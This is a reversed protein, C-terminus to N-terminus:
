EWKNGIPPLLLFLMQLMSSVHIAAGLIMAVDQKHTPLLDFM